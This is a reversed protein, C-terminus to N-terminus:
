QIGNRHFLRTQICIHLPAFSLFFELFPPCQFISANFEVAAMTDITCQHLGMLVGRGYAGLTKWIVGVGHVGLFLDNHM